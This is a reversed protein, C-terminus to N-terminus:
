AQRQYITKGVLRLARYERDITESHGAVYYGDKALLPVMRDLLKIQTPKDFYIMVNRCFIVDLDPAVDWKSDLLNLRQFQILRNLEPRVKVLGEREGKGKLLYSKKLDIDVDKVRSEAYVGMKATKLVQSDIDTALIQVPPTLSKFTQCATMAISYPEEGTSAAACWIRLPQGQRHRETLMDSLSNFHHSERFFSTLNTTLANIFLEIEDPQQDLFGLYQQFSNLNLSRLRRVIRSYVMQRKSDGLKIGAAQFIRKRIAEFDAEDYDFEWEKDVTM